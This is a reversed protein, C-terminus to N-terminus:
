MVQAPAQLLVPAAVPERSLPAARVDLSIDPHHTEVMFKYMPHHVAAWREQATRVEFKLVRHPLNGVHHMPIYGADPYVDDFLMRLYQRDVPARGTVVMWDVGSHLCYLYFAKFLVTKVLTGVRGEAVGLRTAEALLSGSLSPPLTLSQELALPAYRNTQIRLTGLPSGDLHSAALLVVSGDAFDAAEPQLLTRALDPVHRAYAAHRIHVAKDLAEADSVVRVSFPLREELVAPVAGQSAKGDYARHVERTVIAPTAMGPLSPMLTHSIM